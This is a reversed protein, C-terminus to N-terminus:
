GANEWLTMASLALKRTRATYVELVSEVYAISHGTIAAVQQTTCGAESLGTIATGRLDHFHLGDLGAALTAARWEHRFHDQKWPRNSPTVLVTTAPRDKPISDLMARLVRHVPIDVLRGGKSQRM